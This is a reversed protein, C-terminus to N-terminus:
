HTEYWNRGHKWDGALPCPFAFHEGALRISEAAMPGITEVLDDNVEIQWEDHVNALFEYHQGPVLGSAQLRDDLLCLAQKMQVAGASQLLTNLAAHDSRVPIRRGDLGRLWKRTKAAAKVATVLKGMAPLNTLFDARAKKGRSVAQPGKRRLLIRGLKEDGAGYIFAYFWTKAIDRGSEGDFYTGKPDLGLARANMSHIDTGQKKDGRLVAEIYQGGDYKAMYGALDRLELADADCGILAKGAPVIFCARCEPGFPSYAAPVQAMNPSSHSMRGTVTGMTNVSGHIRGGKGVVKLWAYDGEAVQGIRKAVMFYEKLIAAEPYPLKGMIEDDVKPHGDATFETPKWGRLAKLWIAVHDRSGPNFDVWKLKQFVAGATYGLRNNDAKPTFEKGDRLLRPRFVKALEQEIALRRQVLTGYLAQTAPLDLLFGHREQRAVIHAVQTELLVSQDPWQQKEILGWLSQTVSLDQVCYDEMEQSWRDWPGEYDGKHNGMRHGWAALSHSGIHKAPFSNRRKLDEAVIDPWCLRSLVMTDRTKFWPRRYGFLKALVPLDYKTINHGVLLDFQDLHSIGEAMQHERFVRLTGTSLCRVAMVHVKTVENLLGDTELDFLAIRM